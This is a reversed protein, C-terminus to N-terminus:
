AAQEDGDEVTVPGAVAAAADTSPPPVLGPEPTLHMTARAELVRGIFFDYTFIGIVAGVLPGVIPIWWYRTTAGYDGSFALKGWGVLYAFLRPGLDRASNIAYGANTGFSCGIAAVIFGIILPAMNGTPAQNRHDILAAILAVLIAAGVLQDVLPGLYGGHFYSAPSTAFISFTDPSDPRALHNAANYDDIASGYVAYVVAAASFAGALQAM